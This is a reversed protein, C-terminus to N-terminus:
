RGGSAEATIARAQALVAAPLQPVPELPRLSSPLPLSWAQAFIAARRKLEETSTRQAPPLDQEALRMSEMWNNLYGKPSIWFMYAQQTIPISYTRPAYTTQGPVYTSTTSTGFATASGQSNYTVPGFPTSANGTQSGNAYGASTGLSTITRGPTYSSVGMYTGQATGVQAAAGEVLDAGVSAAFGKIQQIGQQPGQFVAKGVLFYGQKRMNKAHAEINDTSLKRLQVANTTIRGWKEGVFHPAINSTTQCGTAMGAILTGM